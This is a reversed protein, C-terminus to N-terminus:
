WIQHRCQGKLVRDGRGLGITPSDDSLCLQKHLVPMNKGRAPYM